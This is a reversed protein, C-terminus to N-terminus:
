SVRMVYPKQSLTFGHNWCQGVSWREQRHHSDFYLAPHRNNIDLTVVELSDSRDVDVTQM